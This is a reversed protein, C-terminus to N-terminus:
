FKIQVKPTRIEALATRNNEVFKDAYESLIDGISKHIYGAIDRIGEYTEPMLYASVQVRKVKQPKATKEGAVQENEVTTAEDDIVTSEDIMRPEGKKKRELSYRRCIRSMTYGITSDKYGKNKLYEEYQETDAITPEIGERGHESLLWNKFDTLAKRTKPRESNGSIGALYSEDDENLM